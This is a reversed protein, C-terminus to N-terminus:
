SEPSGDSQHGRRRTWRYGTRRATLLGHERQLFGLANVQAMYPLPGLYFARGHEDHFELIHKLGDSSGAMKLKEIERVPRFGSCDIGVVVDAPDVLAFGTAPAARVTEHSTM